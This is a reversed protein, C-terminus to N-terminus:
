RFSVNMEMKSFREPRLGLNTLYKQIRTEGDLKAKSM